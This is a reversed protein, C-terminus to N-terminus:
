AVTTPDNLLLHIQPVNLLAKLAKVDGKGAAIHLYNNGEEDEMKQVESAHRLAAIMKPIVESHGVHLAHHIASYGKNCTQSILEPACSLELLANVVVKRKSHDSALHLANLGKKDKALPSAGYSILEKTGVLNASTIANHLPTRGRADHADIQIVGKGDPDLLPDHLLQPHVTCM